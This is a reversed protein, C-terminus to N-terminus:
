ERVVIGARVPDVHSDFQLEQREDGLDVAGVIRFRLTRDLPDPNDLLVVEFATIRPELRRLVEDVHAVFDARFDAASITENTLDDLGYNLLSRSLEEFESPPTLFRRRTNMLAELDRRLGEKLRALSPLDDGTRDAHEDILRDLLAGYHMESSAM